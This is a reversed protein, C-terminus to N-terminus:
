KKHSGDMILGLKGETFARKMNFVDYEQHSSVTQHIITAGTNSISRM